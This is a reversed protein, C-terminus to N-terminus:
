IEFFNNYVDNAAEPQTAEYIQMLRLKELGTQKQIAKLSIGNELAHAIHSYRLVQPNLKTPFGAIKGYFQILQRVRKTTIVASQRTSFLYVGSAFQKLNSLLSKSIKSVKSKNSKTSSAPFHISNQKFDLDKVKIHILENVTCGTEFLIRVLLKDRQSSISNILKHIEKISLYAISLKKQM